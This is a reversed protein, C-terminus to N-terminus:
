PPLPPCDLFLCRLLRGFCFKATRRGITVFRDVALVSAGWGRWEAFAQSLLVWVVHRNPLSQCCDRKSWAPSSVKLWCGHEGPDQRETPNSFASSNNFSHWNQCFPWQLCKRHQLCRLKKSELFRDEGSRCASPCRCVSRTRFRTQLAHRSQSGLRKHCFWLSWAQRSANDLIRCWFRLTSTSWYNLRKLLWFFGVKVKHNQMRPLGLKLILEPMRPSVPHYDLKSFCSHVSWVQLLSLAHCAYNKSHGWGQTRRECPM